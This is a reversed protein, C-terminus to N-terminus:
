KFSQEHIYCVGEAATTLAGGFKKKPSAGSDQEVSFPCRWLFPPHGQNQPTEAQVHATHYRQYTAGETVAAATGAGGSPSDRRWPPAGESGIARNCDM